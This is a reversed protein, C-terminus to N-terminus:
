IVRWVWGGKGEGGRGERCGWFLDGAVRRVCVLLDFGKSLAVLLLELVVRELGRLALLSCGLAAQEFLHSVLCWRLWDRDM